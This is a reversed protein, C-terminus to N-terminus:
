SFKSAFCLNCDSIIKRPLSFRAFVHTAYLAATQESLIEKHCPIFISAKSCDHDTITLISDYGNSDPLKTIFDVAVVEFPTADEKAFIPQLSACTPQNNVKNRQCEACGKVYEAVEKRLNPWWGTRETLQVMRAIGPHGHIPLDHHAKIVDRTKHVGGTYVRRGDKYWVGNIKQLDHLDIWARLKDEHQPAGPATITTTTRIFLKDPLVVVDQNDGTGQNYNAWRSLADARGNATGKVHHITINYKALELM